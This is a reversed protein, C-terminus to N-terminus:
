FFHIRFSSWLQTKLTAILSGLLEEGHCIKMKEKQLNGNINYLGTNLSECSVLFLTLFVVVVVAVM